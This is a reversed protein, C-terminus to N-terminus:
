DITRRRYLVAAATADARQGRHGAQGGHCGDGPEGHQQGCHECYNDGAALETLATGREDVPSIAAIATRTQATAARVLICRSM